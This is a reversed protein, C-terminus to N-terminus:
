IIEEDTVLDPDRKELFSKANDRMREVDKIKTSEPFESIFTYYMDITAMYRDVELSPISNRALEYASVLMYYLISERHKTDPYEKLANKFAAIAAKYHGTKYYTYSNQYSKDHLRQMLEIKMEGFLESQHSNPYRSQFEDIHSLTTYTNTADREPGPSIYYYCLTLMGDADELMPSRSFQKRYLDFYTIATHYDEAKFKCKANIFVLSDECPTGILSPMANTLMRSAKSWKGAEYLEIGRKYMLQPDELRMYSQPSCAGFIAGVLLAM